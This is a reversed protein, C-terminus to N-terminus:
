ILKVMEVATCVCRKPCCRTCEYDIPNWFLPHEQLASFGMRLLYRQSSNGPSELWSHCLVARAGMKKLTELSLGSLERGLGQQQYDEHVFLSKFYAMQHTPVPWRGPTLGRPSKQPWSGPAYTLRVGVVDDKEWAIFSANLEHAVSLGHIELLEEEAYYNQGIWRDTFAKVGPVDQPAFPRIQIPSSTPM